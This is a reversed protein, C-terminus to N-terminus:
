SVVPLGRSAMRSAIAINTSTTSVDVGRDAADLRRDRELRQYRRHEAQDAAIEEPALPGVHQTQEDLAIPAV